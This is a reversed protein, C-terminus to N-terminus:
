KKNERLAALWAPIGINDNNEEQYSFSTEVNSNKEEENESLNIKNHVCIISLKAEIDDISYTDINDQVDKKDEESLMYFSDIMAQKAEKEKTNKFELLVNYADKMTNYQTTLEQFTM